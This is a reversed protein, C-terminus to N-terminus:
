NLVVTIAAMEDDVFARVMAEIEDMDSGRSLAKVLSTKGIKVESVDVGDYLIAQPVKVIVKTRPRGRKPTTPVEPKIELWALAGELNNFEMTEDDKQVLWRRRRSGGAGVPVTSVEVQGTVQISPAYGTIALQGTEANIWANGTVSINPAFGTLTLLGAGPNVTVGQGITPAYGTLVLAGTLPNVIIHETVTVTPAYGTLTLQGADPSIITAGSVSIAPAFGTLTLDGKAPSVTQNATVTLSPAFGTLTLQGTAPNVTVDAGTTV